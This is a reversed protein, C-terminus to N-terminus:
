ADATFWGARVGARLNPVNYEKGGLRLTQGDYEFSDGDYVDVEVAGLHVRKIATFTIFNGKTFQIDM